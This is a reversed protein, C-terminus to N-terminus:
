LGVALRSRLTGRRRLMAVWLPMIETLRRHLRIIQGVMPTLFAPEEAEV